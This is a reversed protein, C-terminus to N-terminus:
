FIATMDQDTLITVNAHLQLFSAPCETGITGSFAQLLAERKENGFALLLIRKARLIGGMGMTIARMPVEDMTDFFRANARRTAESLPTVHTNLVLNGAPENFGIHGNKGIGLIQLDQRGYNALTDDYTRCNVELDGTVKPIYIHQPLVPLFQYINEWMYHHYSQPHNEPLGVYEDLNFGIVHQWRELLKPNARSNQVLDQYLGVPTSGTAFGIVPHLIDVLVRFVIGAAIGNLVDTDQNVIWQIAQKKVM